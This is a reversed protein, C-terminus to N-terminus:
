LACTATSWALQNITAVEFEGERVTVNIGRLAHFGNPYRHRLEEVQILSASLFLCGLTLWSLRPHGCVMTGLGTLAPDKAGFRVDSAQDVQRRDPLDRQGVARSEDYEPLFINFPTLITEPAFDHDWAATKVRSRGGRSFLGIKVPAKADWSVRLVGAREQVVQHFQHVQAFIADTEPIKKLPRSKEVRKLRYDLQNLKTNFTRVSPLAVDAYEPREALQARVQRATMRTYVQTTQFTPDTQSHPEVTTQIGQLLHPLHDEAKKRGRLAFADLCAM